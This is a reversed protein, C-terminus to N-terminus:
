DIGIRGDEFLSVLKKLNKGGQLAPLTVQAGIVHTVGGPLSHRNFWIPRWELEHLIDTRVQAQKGDPNMQPLRNHGRACLQNKKTSGSDCAVERTGEIREHGEACVGPEPAGNDCEIEGNGNETDMKTHTCKYWSIFKTKFCNYWPEYIQELHRFEGVVSTEQCISFILKASLEITGNQIALHDYDIAIVGNTLDVAVSHGNDLQEAVVCLKGDQGDQVPRPIGDEEKVFELSDKYIARWM